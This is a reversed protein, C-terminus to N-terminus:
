PGVLDEKVLIIHLHRGWFVENGNVSIPVISQMGEKPLVFMGTLWLAKKEDAPSEFLPFDGHIMNQKDFSNEFWKWCLKFVLFFHFKIHNKVYYLTLDSLAVYNTRFLVYIMKEM